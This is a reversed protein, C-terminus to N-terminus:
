IIPVETMVSNVEFWQANGMHFIFSNPSERELYITILFVISYQM